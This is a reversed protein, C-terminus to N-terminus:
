LITQLEFFELSYLHWIKFTSVTLWAQQIIAYNDM